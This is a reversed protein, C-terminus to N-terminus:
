SAGGISTYADNLLDLFYGWHGGEAGSTTQNALGRIVNAEVGKAQLDVIMECAVAMTEADIDWGKNEANNKVLDALSKTQAPKAPATVNKRPPPAPQPDFSQAPMDEAPTASYETGTAHQIIPQLLANLARVQARTQAMSLMAHADQWRPRGRMTEASSCAGLAEQYVGDARIARCRYSVMKADPYLPDSSWQPDGFECRVALHGAIELLGTRTYHRNGGAMQVVASERSLADRVYTRMHQRIDAEHKMAIPSLEQQLQIIDTTM